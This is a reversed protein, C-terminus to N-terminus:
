NKRRLDFHAVKSQGGEMWTWEESYHNADAFTFVAHHMHGAQPSALNTADVFTFDLTKGDPSLSAAMRPQNGSACYHTMLLRNGDMTYMTVMSEHTADAMVATGQSVVRYNVTVPQDGMTGEKEMKGEWTGAMSKLKDFAKQADSQPFAAPATLMLMLCFAYRFTKM